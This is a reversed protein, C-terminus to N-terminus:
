PLLKEGKAGPDKCRDPNARRWEMVTSYMREAAALQEADCKRILCMYIYDPLVDAFANDKTLFVCWEDDPVISDDKVKRLVGVIEGVPTIATSVYFKKDLKEAMTVSGKNLVEPL